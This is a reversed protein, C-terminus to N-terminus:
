PGRSKRSEDRVAQLNLIEAVEYRTPLSGDIPRLRIIPPFHGMRGHLEALLVATITNLSPPNVLIPLLEWEESSFPLTNVM